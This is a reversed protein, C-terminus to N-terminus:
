GVNREDAEHEREPRVEVAEDEDSTNIRLGAAFGIRNGVADLHSRQRVVRGELIRDPDDAREWRGQPRDPTCEPADVGDSHDTRSGYTDRNRDQAESAFLPDHKADALVPRAVHAVAEAPPPPCRRESCCVYELREEM